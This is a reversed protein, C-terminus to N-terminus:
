RKVGIPDRNKEIERYSMGLSGAKNMSKEFDEALNISNDEKGYKKTFTKDSKEAFKKFDNITIVESAWLEWVWGYLTNRVIRSGDKWYIAPCDSNVWDASGRKLTLYTKGQWSVYYFEKDTTKNKIM